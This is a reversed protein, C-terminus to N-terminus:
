DLQIKIKNIKIDIDFWNQKDPSPVCVKIDLNRAYRSLSKRGFELTMEYETQGDLGIFAKLITHRNDNIFKKSYYKDSQNLLVGDCWFHKIDQNNSYEFAKCIEYELFECFDQDLIYEQRNQSPMTLSGYYELYSDVIKDFDAQNCFRTSIDILDAISSGSEIQWANQGDFQKSTIKKITLPTGFFAKLEKVFDAINKQNFTPWDNMASLFLTAIDKQKHNKVDLDVLDYLTDYTKISNNM